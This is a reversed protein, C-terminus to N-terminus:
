TGNRSSGSVHAADAALQGELRAADPGLDDHGHAVPEHVAARVVVAHEDVGVAPDAEAETPERDDVEIVDRVLRHRVFIPRHLDDEVALQVVEVLKAGPELRAAVPEARLGIGLHDNV